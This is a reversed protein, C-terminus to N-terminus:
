KKTLFENSKQKSHGNLPVKWRFSVPTMLKDISLDEIGM